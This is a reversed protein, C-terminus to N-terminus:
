RLVRGIVFGAFIAGVLAQTPHQRVYHEVDNLVEDTNHERLYTAATEIGDAVKVGAQAPMGETNEAQSRLRAAASEMGDAAQDMGKDLQEQARAGYESAAEKTRGALEQAKDQVQSSTGNKPRDGFNTTQGIEEAESTTPNENM